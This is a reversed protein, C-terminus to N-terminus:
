RPELQFLALTGGAGLVLLRSGLVAVPAAQMGKSDVRVRGAVSGDEQALLHLYGEFDGVAVFEDIVTPGTVRRQRLAPQKRLSDGSRRDLAWVESDADAVFVTRRDVAIGAYSSMDRSWLVRGNQLSVAVLSGQYSAVYLVGDRVVPDADLDVIRQLETRGSPVAVAAEWIERGTATELAILKGSAFGALVVGGDVLPTSTGRLTLVPVTRDHIWLVEGNQADLATINGDVTQVIVVGEYIRPVSLVESSVETRWRQEGSDAELAVLESESGGVLVLGEGVGAAASVAIDVRTRWRLKGDELNLAWVSGNRDGVYIADAAVTPVLKVFQGDTGEGTSRSWLKRLDVRKDFDALEAPPETNDDSGFWSCGALVLMMSALLLLRPMM